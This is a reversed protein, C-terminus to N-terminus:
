EGVTWRTWASRSLLVSLLSAGMFALAFSAIDMALSTPAHIRATAIQIVRLFAVHSLYIGYSYRGLWGIRTILPSAIPLLAVAICGLGAVARFVALPAFILALAIATAFLVGGGFAVTSSSRPLKGGFVSLLMLAISWCATPLARFTYDWFYADDGRQAIWAPKQLFCAAVGLAIFLLACIARPMARKEVLRFIVAGILTLCLLYPLFWLHTYGGAYFVAWGPPAIPEHSVRAKLGGLLVYIVTWFLFPLYIRFLRSGAYSLLSRSPDRSLARGAFLLAVFTYFPVGFMGIPYLAKGLPSSAAHIWVIGIAAVLRVTDLLALRNTAVAPAPSPRAADVPVAGISQISPISIPM